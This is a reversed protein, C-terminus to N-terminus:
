LNAATSVSKRESQNPSEYVYAEALVARKRMETVTDAERRGGGAERMRPYYPQVVPLNLARRWAIWLDRLFAKEMKRLASLHARKPTWGPHAASLREREADYHSRYESKCRLMSVGILYCSKRAHADYASRGGGVTRRPAVRIPSQSDIVTLEGACGGLGARSQHAGRVQYGLPYAVELGCKVCRYATGSITALGCYAWFASPTRARVVDLRSLLRAALLHGIGRQQELWEWAPHRGIVRSLDLALSKEEDAARAYARELVTPSGATGGRAIETLLHDVDGGTEGSGALSRGQLFARVREGHAVRTRQADEFLQYLLRLESAADPRNTNEYFHELSAAV